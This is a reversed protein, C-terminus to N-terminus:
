QSKQDFLAKYLFTHSKRNNSKLPLILDCFLLDKYMQYYDEARQMVSQPSLYLAPLSASRFHRSQRFFSSSSQSSEQEKRKTLTAVRNNRRLDDAADCFMQQTTRSVPADILSTM